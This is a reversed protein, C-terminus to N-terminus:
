EAIELFSVMSTANEIGLRKFLKIHEFKDMVLRREGYERLM